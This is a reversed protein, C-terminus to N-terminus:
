LPCPHPPFMATSSLGARPCHSRARRKPCSGGWEARPPGSPASPVPPVGLPEMRLWVAPRHLEPPVCVSWLLSASPAPPATGFDGWCGSLAGFQWPGERLIPFTTPSASPSLHARSIPRPCFMVPLLHSKAVAAPLSPLSSPLCPVRGEWVSGRPSGVAAARRAGGWCLETGCPEGEPRQGRVAGVAPPHRVAGCGGGPQPSSGSSRAQLGERVARPPRLIRGTCKRM